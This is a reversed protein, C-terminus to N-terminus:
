YLVIYKVNVRERGGERARERGREDERAGKEYHTNVIIIILNNSTISFRCNKDFVCNWHLDIHKSCRSLYTWCLQRVGPNPM